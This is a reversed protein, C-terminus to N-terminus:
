AEPSTNGDLCTRLVDDFDRLWVDDEISPAKQDGPLRLRAEALLCELPVFGVHRLLGVAM